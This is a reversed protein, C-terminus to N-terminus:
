KINCPIKDFELQYERCLQICKTYAAFAEKTNSSKSLAKLKKIKVFLDHTINKYIFSDMEPAKKSSEECNDHQLSGYKANKDRILTNTNEKVDEHLRNFQIDDMVDPHEKTLFFLMNLIPTRVTPYFTNQLSIVEDVSLGKEKGEKLLLKLKETGEKIEEKYKNSYSDASNLLALKSSKIFEAQKKLKLFYDEDANERVTLSYDLEM